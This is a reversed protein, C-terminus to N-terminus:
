SRVCASSDLEAAVEVDEAFAAVALARGRCCGMLLEVLRPSIGLFTAAAVQAEPGLGTM